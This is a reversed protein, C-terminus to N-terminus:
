TTEWINRATAFSLPEYFHIGGINCVSPVVTRLGAHDIHPTLQELAKPLQKAHTEPTFKGAIAASLNGSGSM